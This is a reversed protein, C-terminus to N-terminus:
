DGVMMVGGCLLVIRGDLCVGSDSRDGRSGSGLWSLIAAFTGERCWLWAGNALMLSMVLGVLASRAGRYM